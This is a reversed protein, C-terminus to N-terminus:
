PRIGNLTAIFTVNAVLDATTGPNIVKGDKALFKELDRTKEKGIETLYGGFDVIQKAKGRISLAAERGHKNYVRSDPNISLLHIYSHTISDVMSAGENISEYFASLGKGFSIPYSDIIEAFLQNKTRQNTFFTSLNIEQELLDNIREPLTIGITNSRPYIETNLQYLMSFINVTDEPTTNEIFNMAIKPIQKVDI